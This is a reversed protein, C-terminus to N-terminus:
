RLGIRRVGRDVRAGPPGHQRGRAGAMACLLPLPVSETYVQVLVIAGCGGLLMSIISIYASDPSSCAGAAGASRLSMSDRRQASMEHKPLCRNRDPQGRCTQRYSKAV